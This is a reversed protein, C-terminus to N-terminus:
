SQNLLLHIRITDAHMIESQRRYETRDIEHNLYQYLSAWIRDGLKVQYFTLQHKRIEAQPYDSNGLFCYIIERGWGDVLVLTETDVMRCHIEKQNRQQDDLEALIIDPFECYESLDTDNPQRSPKVHVLCVGLDDEYGNWDKVVIREILRQVDEQSLIAEFQETVFRRILQRHQHQTKM